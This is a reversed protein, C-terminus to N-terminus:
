IVRFCTMRRRAAIACENMSWRGRVRERWRWIAWQTCDVWGMEVAGSLSVTRDILRADLSGLPKLLNGQASRRATFYEVRIPYCERWDASGRRWVFLMEPRKNIDLFRAHGPSSRCKTALTVPDSQYYFMRKWWPLGSRKNQCWCRHFLQSPPLDRWTVDRKLM